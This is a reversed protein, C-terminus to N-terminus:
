RPFRGTRHPEETLTAGLDLLTEEITEAVARLTDAAQEVWADVARQSAPEGLDPLHTLLDEALVLGTRRADTLAALVANVPRRPVTGDTM